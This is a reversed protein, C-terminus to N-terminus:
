GHKIPNYEVIEAVLIGNCEKAIVKGWNNEGNGEHM